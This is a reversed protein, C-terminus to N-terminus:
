PLGRRLGTALSFTASLVFPICAILALAKLVYTYPSLVNPDFLFILLGLLLALALGSHAAPEQGPTPAGTQLVLVLLLALGVSLGYLLAVSFAGFPPRGADRLRKIHLVTWAWLVVLQAAAFAWINARATVAGTLLFLSAFSALYVVVLSLWFAKPALRGGTTFFLAFPDM